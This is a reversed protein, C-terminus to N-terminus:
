GHRDMGPVGALRAILAAKRAQRMERAGVVRALVRRIIVLM